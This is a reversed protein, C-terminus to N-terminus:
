SGQMEQEVWTSSVPSTLGPRKTWKRRLLQDGARPRKQGLRGRAEEGPRFGKFEEQFEPM